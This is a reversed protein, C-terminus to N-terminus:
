YGNWWIMWEGSCEYCGVGIIGEVDIEMILQLVVEVIGCLFDGQDYKVLFEFLDMNMKIM